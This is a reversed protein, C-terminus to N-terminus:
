MVKNIINVLQNVEDDTLKELFNTALGVLKNDWEKLEVNGQETLMVVKKRADENSKYTKILKKCELTKLAVAVRATSINLSTAIDGAVVETESNKILKLGDRLWQVASGAVFVSGELAYCIEDGIKYAITTLLGNKSFIKNEKTNM